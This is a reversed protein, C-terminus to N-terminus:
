CGLERAIILKQIEPTGEGIELIKTDGLFRAVQYERICGYGGHICVAENAVKVALETAFLKALSAAYSFPEGSDLLTAAKYTLLRAAEIESAMAALKFQIAQFQSIPQGFAHREKAYELSLDMCGQALGVAMAALCVRSTSMAALAQRLGAGEEGVLNEKPVRCDDFFMEGTDVGRWGIKDYKKGVTFGPTGDPVIFQSIAKKGDEREGTVATVVVMGFSESGANTIFSKAGNIVWEDGDLRATTKIGGADSGAGPETSAFANQVDGAIFPVLWKQKQEDTAFMILNSGGLARSCVHLAPASCLSNLEELVICFALYGVNSGGVDEPFPLGMFGLDAMKKILEMPFHNEKDIKEAIPAIEKQAFKRVSERIAKHEDSLNFDM